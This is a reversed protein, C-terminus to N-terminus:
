VDGIAKKAEEIWARKWGGLCGASYRRLQDLLRKAQADLPVQAAVSDSIRGNRVVGCQSLFGDLRGTEATPNAAVQQLEHIVASIEGDLFDSPKLTALRKPSELCMGLTIM